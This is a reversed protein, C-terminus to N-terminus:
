QLDDRNILPRRRFGQRPPLRVGLQDALRYSADALGRIREPRLGSQLATDLMAAM